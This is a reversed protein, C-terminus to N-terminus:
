RWNAVVRKIHAEDLQPCWPAYHKRVMETDVHGLMKAVEEPRQGERLWRVAATHRFMRVNAPKKSGDPLEVHKVGAAEIVAAVRNSWKKQDMKLNLNKTRFPMADTTGSELPISQLHEALEAGIPVVALVGTKQREFRYVWVQRNEVRIRELRAPGFQVADSVDCGVGLLLRVFLRIRPGYTDRQHVPLNVPISAEVSTMIRQVQADTYPGQVHSSSGKPLNMAKISAAPSKDLVEMTVLYAFMSRVVGWRQMQTTKALHTWDNSAQWKQLHVPTIDHVHIIGERDTWKTVFTKLGRYSKTIAAYKGFKNVARDVWLQCADAVTTRKKERKKTVERAAAIEPDLGRLVEQTFRQAEAWSPTNLSHRNKEKTAADYVYIWKACRCSHDERSNKCEPSHRTYPRVSGYPSKFLYTQDV